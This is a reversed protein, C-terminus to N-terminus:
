PTVEGAAVQPTGAAAAAAERDLVRRESERLWGAFFALGAIIYVVCAPVWMILGGLQQDQLPSLGWSWTTENYVPYWVSRAFTLLAGLLGSHLATSFMYLVALGFGMAGRRGHMVSWWFLVASLVFSLHQAAHVFENDLTPQMLAPLHWVWLVVGHILWAAFPNTIARWAARWAPAAFARGITVTWSTPLAWASARLPHGLVLLPAAVLMLLEHQTMHAAFLVRGWPHLPSVLAVVLTAWGGWFCRAEWRRVGHGAGAARWLRRVGRWYLWASLALLILTFPEWGWMVLLDRLHHPKGGHALFPTPSWTV